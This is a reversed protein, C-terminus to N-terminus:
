EGVLEEFILLAERESSSVGDAAIVESGDGGLLRM